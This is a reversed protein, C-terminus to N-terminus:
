AFGIPVDDPSLLAMARPPILPGGDAPSYGVEDGQISPLNGLQTEWNYDLIIKAALTWNPKVYSQGVVYVADIDGYPFYGYNKFTIVGSTADVALDSLNVLTSGDRVWTLSTVSVIQTDPLTITTHGGHVRATKTRRVIPGVYSEVVETVAELYERLEDDSNTSTINLHAKADALSILAPSVTERVEFVDQYATNPVTTVVRWAYRGIVSPVYTERYQGTSGPPNTVSPTVTTGDPLTITLTATTANTLVGSSNKVDWAIPISDGVDFPM